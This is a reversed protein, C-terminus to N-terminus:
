ALLARCYFQNEGENREFFIHLYRQTDADKTKAKLAIEAFRVLIEGPLSNVNGRTNAEIIDRM